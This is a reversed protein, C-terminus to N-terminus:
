DAASGEQGRSVRSVGGSGCGGTLIINPVNHHGEGSGGGYNHSNLLQQEASGQLDLSDQNSIPLQNQEDGLGGHNLSLGDGHPDAM